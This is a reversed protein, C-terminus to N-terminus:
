KVRRDHRSPKLARSLRWFGAIERFSGYSVVATESKQDVSYITGVGEVGRVRVADGQVYIDDPRMNVIRLIRIM